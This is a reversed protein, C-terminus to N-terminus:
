IAPMLQDILTIDMSDHVTLKYSFKFKPRDEYFLDMWHYVFPFKAMELATFKGLEDGGHDHSVTGGTTGDPATDDSAPAQAPSPSQPAHPQGAMTAVGDQSRSADTGRRSRPRHRKPSLEALRRLADTIQAETQLLRTACQKKETDAAALDKRWRQAIMDLRDAPTLQDAHTLICVENSISGKSEKTELTPPPPAQQSQAHLDQLQGMVDALDGELMVLRVNSEESEQRMQDYGQQLTEKEARLQRCTADLDTNHSALRDRDRTVTKLKENANELAQETHITAAEADDVRKAKAELASLRNALHTHEAQTSAELEAQKKRELDILEKSKKQQITAAHLASRLQAQAKRSTSLESTLTSVRNQLSAKTAPVNILSTLQIPQTESSGPHIIDLVFKTPSLFYTCYGNLFDTQRGLEVSMQEEIDSLIEKWVDLDELLEPRTRSGPRSDENPGNKFSEVQIEKFHVHDKLVALYCEGLIRVVHNMAANHLLETSNSQFKILKESIMDISGQDLHLLERAESVFDRRMSLVLQENGPIPLARAGLLQTKGLMSAISSMVDLGLPRPRSSPSLIDMRNPTKEKAVVQLGMEVALGLAYVISVKDTLNPWKFGNLISNSAPGHPLEPPTFTVAQGDGLTSATVNQPEEGPEITQSEPASDSNMPLMGNGLFSDHLSQFAEIDMLDAPLSCANERVFESLKSFLEMGSKRVDLDPSLPLLSCAVLMGTSVILEGSITRAKLRRLVRLLRGAQDPQNYYTMLEHRFGRVQTSTLSGSNDNNETINPIDTTAQASTVSRQESEIVTNLYQLLKAETSAKADKTTNALDAMAQGVTVHQGPLQGGRPNTTSM